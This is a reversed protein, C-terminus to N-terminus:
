AFGPEGFVRTLYARLGPHGFPTGAPAVSCWVDVGDRLLSAMKEIPIHVAEFMARVLAQANAHHVGEDVYWPEHWSSTGAAKLLTDQFMRHSKLVVQIAEAM